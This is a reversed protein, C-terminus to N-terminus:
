TGQDFLTCALSALVAKRGLADAAIAEMEFM